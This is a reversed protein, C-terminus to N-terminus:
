AGLAVAEKPTPGSFSTSYAAFMTKRKNFVKGIFLVQDGEKTARSNVADSRHHKVYASLRRISVGPAHPTSPTTLSKVTVLPTSQARNFTTSVRPLAHRRLPSLLPSAASRSSHSRETYSVGACFCHSRDTQRQTRRTRTRTRSDMLCWPHISRSSMSVNAASCGLGKILM